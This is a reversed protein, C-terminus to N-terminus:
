NLAPQQQKSFNRKGKRFILDRQYLDEFTERRRILGSDKGDIMFIAPRPGAFNNNMPVFYAGADFLVLRDGAHVPTLPISSSLKDLSTPLNGFITYNVLKSNQLKLPIIKHYETLLLPSISMAGGDCILFRQGNSREITEIVSLILIQSPGSLIRGPEVLVEKIGCGEQRLRNLLRELSEAVEKLLASEENSELCVHKKCIASKALQSVSMIPASSVGFGGGIDIIQSQLGLLKAKKIVEELIAFAKRYPRSDKIGSGLHMHFGVFRLYDSRGIAKLTEWLEPSDPLFGYPSDKASSNLTPKFKALSLGPCIRIGINLPAPSKEVIAKVRSFEGASEVTVMKPQIGKMKELFKMTKSPGNVVIDKGKFGLLRSIELEHDFIVEVGLGEEKLIKLFEPVPNTKVSYHIRVPLRRARFEKLFSKISEHAAKSSLVYLPTGFEDALRSLPWAQWFLEGGRYEFNM